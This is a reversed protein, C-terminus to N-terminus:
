ISVKNIDNEIQPIDDEELPDPENLEESISIRTCSKSKPIKNGSDDSASSVQKESNACFDINFNMTAELVAIASRFFSIFSM